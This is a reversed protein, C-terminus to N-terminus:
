FAAAAVALMSGLWVLVGGIIAGIGLVPEDRHLAFVAVTALLLLLVSAGIYWPVFPAGLALWAAPGLALAIPPYKGLLFLLPRLEFWVAASMFLYSAVLVLVGVQLRTMGTRIEDWRGGGSLSSTGPAQLLIM